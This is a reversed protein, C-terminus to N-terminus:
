QVLAALWCQAAEGAERVVEADSRGSRKLVRFAHDAGELWHRTWWPRLPAVAEEMRARDCLKDRTGNLCLV